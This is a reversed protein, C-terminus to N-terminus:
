NALSYLVVHNGEFMKHFKQDFFHRVPSSHDTFDTKYRSGQNMMAKLKYHDQMDLLLLYDFGAKQFNRLQKELIALDAPKPDEFPDFSLTNRNLWIPPPQSAVASYLVVRANAPILRMAAEMDQLNPVRSAKLFWAAGIVVAVHVFLIGGAAMRWRNDGRLKELLRPFGFSAAITVWFLVPLTYQPEWSVIREMVYNTALSTLISAKLWPNMRATASGAAFLLGLFGLLGCGFPFLFILPTIYFEPNTLDRMEVPGYSGPQYGGLVVWSGPPDHLSLSLWGLLGLLPTIGWLLSVKVCAGASRCNRAVLLAVLIPLGYILISMKALVTFLFAGSSAVLNGRLAFFFAAAMGTTAMIDPMPVQGFQLVLPATTWLATGLLAPNPDLWYRLALYLFRISLFAFMVAVLRVVAREHHKFVNSAPWGIVGYFPVELHCITTRPTPVPLPSSLKGPDSLQSFSSRPTIVAKWGEHFVHQAVDFTFNQRVFHTSVFPANLGHLATVLFFAQLIGVLKWEGRTPRSSGPVCFGPQPLGDSAPADTFIGKILSLM